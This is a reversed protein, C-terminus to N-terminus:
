SPSVLGGLSCLPPVRGSRRRTREDGETPTLLRRSWGIDGVSLDGDVSGGRLPAPRSAVAVHGACRTRTPRGALGEAEDDRVSYIM